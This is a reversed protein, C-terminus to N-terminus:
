LQADEWFIPYRHVPLPLIVELSTITRNTLIFFYTKPFILSHAVINSWTRDFDLSIDILKLVSISRISHLNTHIRYIEVLAKRPPKMQLILMYGASFAGDLNRFHGCGGAWVYGMHGERMHAQLGLLDNFFPVSM